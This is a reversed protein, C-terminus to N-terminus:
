DAMAEIFWGGTDRDQFMRCVIGTSLEVDWEERTWGATWWEGSTRWPGTCTRVSGGAFGSRDITIRVPRGAELSVRAPVPQRYRRLASLLRASASRTGDAFLGVSHEASCCGTM